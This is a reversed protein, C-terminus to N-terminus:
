RMCLQLGEEFTMWEPDTAILWILGMSILVPKFDSQIHKKERLELYISGDKKVILWIELRWSFQKQKM